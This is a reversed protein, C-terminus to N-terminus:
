LQRGAPTQYTLMASLGPRQFPLHLATTSLFPLYHRRLAPRRVVSLRKPVGTLMVNTQLLGGTLLCSTTQEM